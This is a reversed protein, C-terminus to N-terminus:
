GSLIIERAEPGCNFLLDVVSLNPIFDKWLQPYVPCVFSQYVVEIGERRFADQDLHRQTGSGKGTLYNTGGSVKVMRILHDLPGASDVALESARVLRAPAALYGALAKILNINFNALSNDEMEYARSLLLFVEKFYPAKAYCAKFTKLHKSKWERENALAVDKIPLLEGKGKVPATLWAPGNATKIEVRSVFSKGRPLQVDDLFIFVDCSLLKHFYGTWPLFNPQHIAVTSM